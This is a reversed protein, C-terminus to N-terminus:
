YYDIANYADFDDTITGKLTHFQSVMHIITGYVINYEILNLYEEKLVRNTVNHILCIQKVHYGLKCALKAKLSHVTCDDSMELVIIHWALTKFILKVNNRVGVIIQTSNQYIKV